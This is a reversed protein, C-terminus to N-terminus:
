AELNKVLGAAKAKADRAAKRAKDHKGEIQIDIFMLIVGVVLVVDAVNFM